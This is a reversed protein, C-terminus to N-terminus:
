EMKNESIDLSKILKLKYCQRALEENDVHVIPKKMERIELTDSKKDYRLWTDKIHDFIEDLSDFEYIGKNRQMANEFYYYKDDDEYVVFVHANGEYGYPDESNEEKCYYMHCTYGMRELEQLELYSQEACHGKRSKLIEDATQTSDTCNEYDESDLYYDINKNMWNYLQKPTNFEPIDSTNKSETLKMYYVEENANEDYYPEGVIKFGAKDYMHKARDNDTAVSLSNVGYDKILKNLQETGYGKGRYKPLIEFDTLFIEGDKYDRIMAKGVVEDDHKLQVTTDESYDEYLKNLEDFAEFLDM